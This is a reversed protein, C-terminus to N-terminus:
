TRDSMIKELKVRYQNYNVWDKDQDKAKFTQDKDKDKPTQDQDQDKAKLTQDKDKDKAKFTLDKNVDSYKSAQFSIHPQQQLWTRLASVANLRDKPDENLEVKAKEATRENLQCVYNKDEGAAM